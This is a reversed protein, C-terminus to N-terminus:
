GRTKQTSIYWEIIKFNVGWPFILFIKRKINRYGIIYIFLFYSFYFM